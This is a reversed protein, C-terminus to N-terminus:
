ASIKLKMPALTIMPQNKEAIKEMQALKAETTFLQIIRTGAV